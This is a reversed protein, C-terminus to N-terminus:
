HRFAFRGVFQQLFGLARRKNKDSNDVKVDEPTMVELKLQWALGGPPPFGARSSTSM